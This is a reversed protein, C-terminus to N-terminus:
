ERFSSNWILLASLVSLLLLLLLFSYYARFHIQGANKRQKNLSTFPVAPATCHAGALSSDIIQSSSGVESQHVM